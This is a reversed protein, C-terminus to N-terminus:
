LQSAIRENYLREGLKFVPLADAQEKNLGLVNAMVNSVLLDRKLLDLAHQSWGEGDSRWNGLSDEVAEDIRLSVESDELARYETEFADGVDRYLKSLKEDFVKREGSFMKDLRPLGGENELRGLEKLVNALNLKAMVLTGNQLDRREVQMSLIPKFLEMRVNKLSPPEFEEGKVGAIAEGGLYGAQDKMSIFLYGVAMGGTVNVRTQATQHRHSLGAEGQLTGKGLYGEASATYGTSTTLQALKLEAKLKVEDGEEKWAKEKVFTGYSRDKVTTPLPGTKDVDFFRKEEIKVPTYKIGSDKYAQQSASILQAVQNRVRTLFNGDPSSNPTASTKLSKAPSADTHLSRVGSRELGALNRTLTPLVTSSRRLTQNLASTTFTHTVTQM